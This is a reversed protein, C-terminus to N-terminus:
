KTYIKIYFKTKFLIIVYKLINVKIYSVYPIMTSEEDKNKLKPIYPSQMVLSILSEWSFSQLWPNAKIHSIKSLRSLPNKFLM